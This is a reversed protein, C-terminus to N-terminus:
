LAAPLVQGGSFFFEAAAIVDFSQDPFQDFVERLREAGRVCSLLAPALDSNEFVNSGRLSVLGTIWCAGAHDVYFSAYLGAHGNLVNFFEVVGARRSEDIHLTQLHSRVLIRKVEEEIRLTTIIQKEKQLIFLNGNEEVPTFGLSRIAKELDSITLNM